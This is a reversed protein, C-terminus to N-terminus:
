VARCIAARPRQGQNIEPAIQGVSQRVNIFTENSFLRGSGGRGTGDETFASGPLVASDLRSWPIGKLADGANIQYSHEMPLLKKNQTPAQSQTTAGM